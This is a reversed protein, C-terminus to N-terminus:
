TSVTNVRCGYSGQSFNVINVTGEGKGEEVVCLVERKGEEWTSDVVWLEERMDEEVFCLNGGFSGGCFQLKKGKGEAVGYCICRIFFPLFM